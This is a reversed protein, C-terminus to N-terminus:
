QWFAFYLIAISLSVLLSSFAIGLETVCDCSSHGQPARIHLPSCMRAWVNKPIFSSPHLIFANTRTQADAKM